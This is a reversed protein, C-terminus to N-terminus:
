KVFMVYSRIRTIACYYVKVIDQFPLTRQCMYTSSIALVKASMRHVVNSDQANYHVFRDSPRPVPSKSTTPSMM